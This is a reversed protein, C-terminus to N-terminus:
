PMSSFSVSRFAKGAGVVDGPALAADPGAGVGPPDEAVADAPGPGAGRDEAIERCTRASLLAVRDTENVSTRWAVEGGDPSTLEVCTGVPTDVLVASTDLHEGFEGTGDEAHYSGHAVLPATDALAVGTGALAATGVAGLVLITRIRTRM